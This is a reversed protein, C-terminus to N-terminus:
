EDVEDDEVEATGGCEPCDRRDDDCTDCDCDYCECTGCISGDECAPCKM